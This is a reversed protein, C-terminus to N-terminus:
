ERPKEERRRITVSELRCGQAAAACEYLGTLIRRMLAEAEPTGPRLERDGYYMVAPGEYSGSMVAGRGM